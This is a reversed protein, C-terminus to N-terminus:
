SRGVILNPYKISFFSISWLLACGCISFPALMLMGGGATILKISEAERGISILKIGGGILAASNLAFWSGSCFFRYLQYKSKYILDSISPLREWFSLYRIEGTYSHRDTQKIHLRISEQRFLERLEKTDISGQLQVPIPKSHGLKQLRFGKRDDIYVAHPVSGGDLVEVEWLSRPIGSSIVKVNLSSLLLFCIFALYYVKRSQKVFYGM